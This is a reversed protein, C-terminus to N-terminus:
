LQVRIVEDALVLLGEVAEARRLLEPEEVQQERHVADARLDGKGDDARAWGGIKLERDHGAVLGDEDDIGPM